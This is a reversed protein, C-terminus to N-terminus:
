TQPAQRDNMFRQAIETIASRDKKTIDRTANPATVVLEGISVSERRAFVRGAEELPLWQGEGGLVTMFYQPYQEGEGFIKM